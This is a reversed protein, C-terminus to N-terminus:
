NEALISEIRQSIPPHSYHIFVYLPHPTLNAFNEITLKKLASVMADKSTNKAAFGDAQFEAKRSAYNMYISIPIEVPELLVMMLIITFGFHVGTLGFATFLSPTLLIFTLLGVYVLLLLLTRFLGKTTDKHTAHGLEHALVALIEESSMKEILTDFLVVEKQKGLGSFYANLKTSRKSADLVFIKKVEFGLKAGLADIESKLPSDAMPEIKNFWRMFYKQLFYILVLIIALSIYSFLMFWLMNDEFQRFIFHLLAILGSGLVITLIFGKLTDIWFLKPTMKNFGFTAEIKFIQYYKLPLNILLTIVYFVFMFLLTQLTLSATLDNVAGELWGFFNFSLFLLLLLTSIVSTIMGFKFNAMNYKLWTQYKEPDYIDEVSEPMLAKRNRYNLVSITTDFVFVVMIILLVILKM